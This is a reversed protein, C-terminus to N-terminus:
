QANAQQEKQQNIQATQQDNFASEGAPFQTNNEVQYKDIMQDLSQQKQDRQKIRQLHELVQGAVEELNPLRSKDSKAVRVLHQGYKSAIPGYWSDGKTLQFAAQSFEKGFHSTIFAPTRDVYNRHFFFRQGFQSAKEFPIKQDNLIYLTNSAMKVTEDGYVKKDFFVHTFTM